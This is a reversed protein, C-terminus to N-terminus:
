HFLWEIFLQKSSLARRQFPVGGYLKMDSHLTELHHWMKGTVDTAAQVFVFTKFNDM